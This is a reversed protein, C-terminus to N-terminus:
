LVLIESNILKLHSCPLFGLGDHSFFIYPAFFNLSILNFTFYSVYICVM